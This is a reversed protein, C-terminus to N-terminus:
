QVQLRIMGQKDETTVKVLYLGPKLNAISWTHELGGRSDSTQVLAGSTNFVEVTFPSQTQTFELVVRDKAPNPYLNIEGPSFEPVNNVTATACNSVETCNNITVEVKYSGGQNMTFYTSDTAGAIMSDNPCYYWQYSDGSLSSYMTGLNTPDEAATPSFSNVILEQTLVSDCGASTQATDYYFGATSRFQGFIFVSDGDCVTIAGLTTNENPNVILDQQIVSDCGVATSLSDYYTGAASEYKGFIMVSDGQCVEADPLNTVPINCLDTLTIASSGRQSHSGFSSSSGRAWIINFSGPTNPFTFYNANTGVRPRTVTTTGVGGTASHNSSTLSSTLLSGGNHFGLSRESIAGTGTTIISYTGNMSGGGFGYGYYFSSNGTMTIDVVNTNTNVTVTLVMNNASNVTTSGQLIQSYGSLSLLIGGGFLLLKKIM